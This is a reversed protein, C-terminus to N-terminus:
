ESIYQYFSISRDQKIGPDIGEDHNFYEIKDGISINLMHNFTAVLHDKQFLWKYDIISIKEISNTITSICFNTWDIYQYLERMNIDAKIDTTDVDRWCNISKAKINSIYSDIANRTLYIYKFGLDDLLPIINLYINNLDEDSSIVIKFVFLSSDISEAINIFQEIYSKTDIKKKDLILDDKYTYISTNTEDIDFDQSYLSNLIEGVAFIKRYSEKNINDTNFFNQNLIRILGTSGTRGHTIICLKNM